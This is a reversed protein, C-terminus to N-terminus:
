GFIGREILPKIITKAYETAGENVIVIGNSQIKLDIPLSDKMKGKFSIRSIDISSDNSLFELKDTLLCVYVPNSQISFILRNVEESLDEDDETFEINYVKLDYIASFEKIMKVMLLSPIIIQRYGKCYQKELFAYYEVTEDYIVTEIKSHLQFLKLKINKMGVGGMM